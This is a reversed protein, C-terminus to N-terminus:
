ALLAQLSPALLDALAQPQDVHLWHGADRLLHLRVRTPDLTAFRQVIEPTWRDSREARVVDFAMGPPPSQLLGWFDARFYSDLMQEVAPLDFKWVLGGEPAPKVGTTMWQAVEDSLGRARLAEVVAARNPLPQPVDHLIAVVREVDHPRDDLGPRADPTADLVWVQRLGEPRQFALQMAVKGGFSHGIVAEPRLGLHRCLRQLDDACAQLTHPPPAGASDGHNRLDVLVIQLGPVRATLLGAFTRLNRASGLIGHLVLATARVKGQAQVLLHAPLFSM